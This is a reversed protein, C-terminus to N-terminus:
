FLSAKVGRGLNKASLTQTKPGQLDGSKESMCVFTPLQISAPLINKDAGRGKKTHGLPGARERRAKERKRRRRRDIPTECLYYDKIKKDGGGWVM